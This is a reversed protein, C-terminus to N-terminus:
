NQYEQKWISEITALTALLTSPSVIVINREFAEYYLSNDNQLACGFASEIPVFLLVFDPSRDDYLQQYNKASLGKVHARISAIHQKLAAETDAEDDSSVFREYATLS